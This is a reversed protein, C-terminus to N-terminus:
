VEVREVRPARDKYKAPVRSSWTDPPETVHTDVDIVRYQDFLDM